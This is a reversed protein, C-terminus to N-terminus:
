TKPQKKRSSFRKMIGDGFITVMIMASGLYFGWSMKESEGFFILALIIAYIPEMNVSITVTYPSLRKMVDVSIVFAVSTCVVALILLYILDMWFTDMGNSMLSLTEFDLTGTLAFYVTIIATAGLMEYLTIITPSGKKGVFVGNFITFLSVLFASILSYIIGLQYKTEFSFIMLLGALVVLGFLMEYLVIKKRYILPELLSTFLTASALTALTVSVTSVKLAEFFFVWHFAVIVGVGLYQWFTKAPIKFSKKRIIMYIALSLFAFLTRYWVISTSPVTIVKGLIGTFGWVLIVAHLKVYDKIPANNEM